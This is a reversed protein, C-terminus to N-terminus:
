HLGGGCVGGAAGGAAARGATGSPFRKGDLSFRPREYNQIWELTGMRPAMDRRYKIFFAVILGILLFMLAMASPRIELFYSRLAQIM